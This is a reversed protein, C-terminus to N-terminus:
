VCLSGASHCFVWDHIANRQTANLERDVIVIERGRGRCRCRQDICGSWARQERM